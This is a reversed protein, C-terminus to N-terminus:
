PRIDLLRRLESQLASRGLRKGVDEARQIKAIINQVYFAVHGTEVLARLMDSPIADVEDYENAADLLAIKQVAHPPLDKPQFVINTTAAVAEGAAHILKALDTDTLTPMDM